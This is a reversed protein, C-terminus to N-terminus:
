SVDPVAKGKQRFFDAAGPKEKLPIEEKEAMRPPAPVEGRPQPLPAPQPLVPVAPRPLSAHKESPMEGKPATERAVRRREQDLRRVEKKGRAPEERKVPVDQLEVMYPEQRIEKKEQPLYIILLFLAAHLFVSFAVLYLFTKEIYRDSM